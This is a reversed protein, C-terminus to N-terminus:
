VRWRRTLSLGALAIGMLALAAPEPVGMGRGFLMLNSIDHYSGDYNWAYDLVGDQLLYASWKITNDNNPGTAGDKMVAVLNEYDAWINAALSFNGDTGVFDGSWYATDAPDGSEVKDLESWDDFGFFLGDNLKTTSAAGGDGDACDTAPTIGGLTCPTANVLGNFGIGALAILGILLRKM